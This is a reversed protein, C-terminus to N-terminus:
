RKLVYTLDHLEEAWFGGTAEWGVSLCKRLNVGHNHGETREHRQKFTM